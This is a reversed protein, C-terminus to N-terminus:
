LRIKLTSFWPKFPATVPLKQPFRKGLVEVNFVLDCREFVVWEQDKRGNIQRGGDSTVRVAEIAQDDVRDMGILGRGQFISDIKPANRIFSISISTTVSSASLLFLKIQSNGKCRTPINPM